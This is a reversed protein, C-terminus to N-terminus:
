SACCLMCRRRSWSDTVICSLAALVLALITRTAITRRNQSILLSRDNPKLPTVHRNVDNTSYVLVDNRGAVAMRPRTFGKRSLVEVIIRTPLTGVLRNPRSTCTSFRGHDAASPTICKTFPKSGVENICTNVTRTYADCFVRRRARREDDNCASLVRDDHHQTCISLDSGFM